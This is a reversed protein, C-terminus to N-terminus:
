DLTKFYNKISEQMVLLLNKEIRHISYGTDNKESANASFLREYSVGLAKAISEIVELSASKRALEIQTMFPVSIGTKEALYEQTWGTEKRLTRINRGLVTKIDDM